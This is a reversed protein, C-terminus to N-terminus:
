KRRAAFAQEFERGNRLDEVLSMVGQRGASQYWRAVACAAREYLDRTRAIQDSWQWMSRPLKAIDADSMVVRCRPASARTFDLTRTDRSVLVALGEDFWAPYAGTMLGWWGVRQHLEAHALEHALITASRGRPALRVVHWGYTAGRAGKGGLRRDCDDSGCAIVVPDAEVVGYMAAVRKRAEALDTTLQSREARTLRAEVYVRGALHQYGFCSPCLYASMIPNAMLWGSIAILLGIAGGIAAVVRWRAARGVAARPAPRRRGTTPPMTSESVM